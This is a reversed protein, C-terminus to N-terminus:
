TKCSSLARSLFALIGKSLVALSLTVHRHLLKLKRTPLVIADNADEGDGNAGGRFAYHGHGVVMGVTESVIAREALQLAHAAQHHVLVLQELENRATM